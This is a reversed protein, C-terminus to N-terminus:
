SLYNLLSPIYPIKMLQSFPIITELLLQSKLTTHFSSAAQKEILLINNEQHKSFYNIYQM